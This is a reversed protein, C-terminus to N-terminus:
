EQITLKGLSQKITTKSGDSNINWHTNLNILKIGLEKGRKTKMCVPIKKLDHEPFKKMIENFLNYLEFVNMKKNNKKM